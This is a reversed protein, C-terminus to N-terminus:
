RRKWGGVQLIKRHTLLTTNTSSDPAGQRTCATGRGQADPHQTGTAATGLTSTCDRHRLPHHPPSTSVSASALVTYIHLHQIFSHHFMTNAQSRSMRQPHSAPSCSPHTPIKEEAAKATGPPLQVRRPASTALAQIMRQHKTSVSASVSMCETLVGIWSDYCILVCRNCLGSGGLGILDQSYV